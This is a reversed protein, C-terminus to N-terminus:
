DNKEEVLRVSCGVARSEVEISVKNEDFCVICDLHAYPGVTSPAVWYYGGAGVFFVDAGWRYGAAPLFVAGAKEMKAWQISDYVNQRWSFSPKFECNPVPVWRDPLLILGRVGSVTAMGYKKTAEERHFFLYEWEEEVLTRWLGGRNYMGWDHFLSYDQNDTSTINPRDGTGWGFLGGYDYQHATFGHGGSKLNSPAFRVKIVDSVSFLGDGVVEEGGVNGTTDHIDETGVDERECSAALRGTVLLLFSLVCLHVYKRSNTHQTM